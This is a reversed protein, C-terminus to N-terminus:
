AVRDSNIFHQTLHFFNLVHRFTEVQFLIRAWFTCVVDSFGDIGELFQCLRFQKM